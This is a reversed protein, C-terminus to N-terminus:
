AQIKWKEKVRDRVPTGGCSYSSQNTSCDTYRRNANVLTLEVYAIRKSSFAIKIAGNGLKNLKISKVTARGNRQVITVLAVSGASRNAMDVSIKARRNGPSIKKPKFRFTASALHNIKVTGSRKAKKRLTFTRNASAVPYAGGGLYSSPRRNAAAFQGYTTAFDLRRAALASAIAQMSYQDAGLSDARQWMNLVLNPMSGTRATSRKTLYEFYIWDAYQLLGRNGGYTDLSTSPYRLQSYPLYQRNDPIGPYVQREAWTATAEMFWADEFSDYAFQTAHFYEHAATVKLMDAPTEGAYTARYQSLAFDNDLVCFAPVAGAGRAPYYVLRGDDDLDFACYGYIGTGGLDELYIDTASSGGWNTPRGYYRSYPNTVYSADAVPKRYGSRQYTTTIQSLVPLVTGQAWATNTIDASKGTAAASTAWHLCLNDTCQSATGGQGDDWPRQYSALSSGAPARGAANLRLALDRLALTPDAATTTQQRAAARSKPAFLDTVTSQAEAAAARDSATVSDAAAGGTLLDASGGDEGTLSPSAVRPNASPEAWASLTPGCVLAIATVAVLGLRRM